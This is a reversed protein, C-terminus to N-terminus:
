AGVACLAKIKCTSVYLRGNFLNFAIRFARRQIRSVTLSDLYIFKHEKFGEVVSCLVLFEDTTTLLIESTVMKRSAFRAYDILLFPPIAGRNSFLFKSEFM